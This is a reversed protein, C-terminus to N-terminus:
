EGKKVDVLLNYLLSFRNDVSKVFMQKAKEAM